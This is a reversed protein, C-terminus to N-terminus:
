SGHFVAEDDRTGAQTPAYANVREKAGCHVHGKHSQLIIPEDNQRGMEFTAKNELWTYLAQIQDLSHAHGMNVGNCDSLGYSPSGSLIIIDAGADHGMLRLCFMLHQDKALWLKEWMPYIICLPDREMNADAWKAIEERIDNM